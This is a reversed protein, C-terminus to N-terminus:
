GIESNINNEMKNWATELDKDLGFLGSSGVIFVEIGADYLEKYTKLNCSGDVEIEFHYGKEERLKKAQRVKDLSERIFKQGAFGPDVTMFTIKDLLHIYMFITELPTAPNLAVGIKKGRAKVTDILRFMFKEVTEPIVTIVEAGSDICLNVLDMDVNDVMLHVDMPVNSIEKLQDMFCPALCFNKAYHWDIIDVHLYDAKKNFFEMQKQVNMLDMCMLSPAIKVKM